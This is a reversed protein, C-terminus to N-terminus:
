ISLWDWFISGTFTWALNLTWKIVGKFVTTTPLAPYRKPITWLRKVKTKNENTVKSRGWLTWPLCVWVNIYWLVYGFSALHLYVYWLNSGIPINFWCNTINTNTECKALMNMLKYAHEDIRLAEVIRLGDQSGKKRWNNTTVHAVCFHSTQLQNVNNFYISIRGASHM